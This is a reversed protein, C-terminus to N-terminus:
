ALRIPAALLLLLAVGLRTRWMYRLYPRNAERLGPAGDQDISVAHWESIRVQGGCGVPQEDHLCPVAVGKEALDGELRSVDDDVRTKSAPRRNESSVVDSRHRM